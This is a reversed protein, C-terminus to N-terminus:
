RAIRVITALPITRTAGPLGRFKPECRSDDEASADRFTICRGSPTTEIYCTATRHVRTDEQVGSVRNQFTVKKGRLMEVIEEDTHEDTFMSDLSPDKRIVDRKTRTGVPKAGPGFPDPRKSALSRATAPLPGGTGLVYLRRAKSAGSKGQAVNDASGPLKLEWGIAWWAMGGDRLEKVRLGLAKEEESAEGRKRKEKVAKAIAKEDADADVFGTQKALAIAESIIADAQKAAKKEKKDRREQKNATSKASGM